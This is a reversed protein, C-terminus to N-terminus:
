KNVVRTPHKSVQKLQQNLHDLAIAAIDDHSELSENIKWFGTLEFSTEMQAAFFARRSWEFYNDKPDIELLENLGLVTSKYNNAFRVTPLVNIAQHEGFSLVPKRFIVAETGATGTITAVLSAAEIWDWSSINPDALEVNSIQRLQDYYWRSRVGFSIPNEKIVLTVDAPAAKSIWAIMELSNNFEPSVSLLTIEPELHLPIFCIRKKILESPRAGFKCFYSYAAPKRLITPVWGMFSYGDQKRSGRMVRYIEIAIQHLTSKFAQIWTYRTKEMRLKTGAELDYTDVPQLDDMRKELNTRISSELWPSTLFTDESWIFREGLKIPALSFITLGRLSAVKFLVPNNRWCIICDPSFYDFIQEAKEFRSIITSLKREHPWWAKAVSPYRDVNFLYGRGLGRDESMMQSLRVKYKKELNLARDLVDPFELDDSVDNIMIDSDPMHKYVVNAVIKSEALISVEYQKALLKALSVFFGVQEHAIYVVCKM